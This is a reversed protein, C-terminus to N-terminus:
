APAAQAEAEFCIKEIDELKTNETLPSLRAMMEEALQRSPFDQLWSNGMFEGNHVDYMVAYLSFFEAKADEVQKVSGNKEVCGYVILDKVKLNDSM